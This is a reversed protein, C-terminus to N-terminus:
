LHIVKEQRWGNGLDKCDWGSTNRHTHSLVSKGRTNRNQVRKWRSQRLSLQWDMSLCNAKEKWTDKAGNTYSDLLNSKQNKGNRQLTTFVVKTVFFLTKNNQKQKNQTKNTSKFWAKFLIHKNKPQLLSLPHILRLHSEEPFSGEWLFQTKRARLTKM